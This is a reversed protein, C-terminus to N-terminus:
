YVSTSDVSLILHPSPIYQWRVNGYAAGHRRRPIRLWQFCCSLKVLCGALWALSCHDQINAFCATDYIAQWLISELTINNAGRLVYWNGPGMSSRQLNGVWLDCALRRPLIHTMLSLSRPRLHLQFSCLCGNLWGRETLLNNFFHITTKKWQM